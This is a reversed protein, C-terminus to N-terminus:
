KRVFRPGEKGTVGNATFGCKALVRQSAANDADTEAEIGFVKSQGDAWRVAELVAETAYGNNRYEERIGYGIEVVGDMNIGKFNLDGIHTGDKLDIMWLAYWEWQEKNKLSGDLMEMYANKLEEDSELRILEQMEAHSTTYIRLRDTELMVKSKRFVYKCIVRERGQYDGKGHYLKIFGCREMVKVSALNDALCIGTIEDICIQKMIVPLFATIAETAYGRKTYSGGIHYGVEWTGDDCPIVQVYGIYTGDKLLVPYVLPGKGSTYCNMLYDVTEVADEVTEFVEDPVFRRNDEDLSEKHVSEAMGIDFETIRLRETEINM